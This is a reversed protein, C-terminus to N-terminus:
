EDLPASNHTIMFGQSCSPWLRCQAASGSFIFLYVEALQTVTLFIFKQYSVAAIFVPSNAVEM